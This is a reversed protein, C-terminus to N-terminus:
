NIPPRREYATSPKPPSFLVGADRVAREVRALERWRIADARGTLGHEIGLCTAADALRDQYAHWTAVRVAMTVDSGRRHFADLRGALRRLDAAVQEIPPGYTRPDAPHGEQAKRRAWHVADGVHLGAWLLGAPAVVLFLYTVAREM